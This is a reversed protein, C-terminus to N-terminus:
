RVKKVLIIIVYRKSFRLPECRFYAAFRANRRSKYFDPSGARRRQHLEIGSTDIGCQKDLEDYFTRIDEATITPRM